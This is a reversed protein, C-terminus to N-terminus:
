KRSQRGAEYGLAGTGAAATGGIIWPTLPGTKRRPRAVLVWKGDKRLGFLAGDDREMYPKGNIDKKEFLDSGKKTDGVYGEDTKKIRDYVKPRLVKRKTTKKAAMGVTEFAPEAAAAAKTQFAKIIAQRVSM